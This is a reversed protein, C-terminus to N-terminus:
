ATSQNLREESQREITAMDTRSIPILELNTPLENATEAPGDWQLYIEEGNIIRKINKRKGNGRLPQLGFNIWITPLSPTFLRYETVIEKFRSQIEKGRDTSLKVVYRQVSRDFRFSPHLSPNQDFTDKTLSFTYPDKYFHLITDIGLFRAMETNAQKWRQTSEYNDMLDRYLGTEKPVIFNHTRAM